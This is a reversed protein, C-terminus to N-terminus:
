GMMQKSKWVTIVSAPKNKNKRVVVTIQKDQVRYTSSNIRSVDGTKIAQKINRVSVSRENARQVAHATFVAADVNRHLKQTKKDSDRKMKKQRLYKLSM